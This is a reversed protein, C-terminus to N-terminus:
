SVPIKLYNPGLTGKYDVGGIILRVLKFTALWFDSREPKLHESSLLADCVQRAGVFKQNVALELLHMLPDEQPNRHFKHDRSPSAASNVYIKLAQDTQHEQGSNACEQLINGWEDARQEEKANELHPRHVIYLNFAEEVAEVKLIDDVFVSIKEELNM